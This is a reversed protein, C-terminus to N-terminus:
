DSTALLLRGPDQCYSGALARNPVHVCYLIRPVCATQSHPVLLTLMVTRRKFRINSPHTRSELLAQVIHVTRPRLCSPGKCSHLSMDDTMLQKFCNCLCCSGPSTIHSNNSQTHKYCPAPDAPHPSGCHPHRPMQVQWGGGQLGAAWANTTCSCPAAPPLPTSFSCCWTILNQHHQPETSTTITVLDQAMQHQWTPKSSTDGPIGSGRVSNPTGSPDMRYRGTEYPPM